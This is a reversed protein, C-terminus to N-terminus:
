ASDWGPNLLPNHCHPCALYMRRREAYPIVFYQHCDPCQLRRTPWLAAVALEVARIALRPDCAYSDAHGAVASSSLLEAVRNLVARGEPVEREFLVEGDAPEEAGHGGPAAVLRLAAAPAGRVIRLQEM